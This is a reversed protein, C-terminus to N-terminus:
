STNTKTEMFYHWSIVAQRIRTGNIFTGNSSGLDRVYFVGENYGIVSHEKSLVQLLLEHLIYYFPGWQLWDCLAGQVSGTVPGWTLYLSGAMLTALWLTSRPCFRYCSSMYSLTFRGDIYGIVSHEKSLVQLLLESLIYHVPWWHLWACLTSRPCFRYCSSLCSITFQGDIYLLWACFAGQFSGTVPAWSLNLTSAILTALWLTCRPCFRYFSSMYSITFKGDSYGIVSHEKSLVQLLLEHLIYHVPGWQLWDCLAGRVSCTVPAWTLYLSSAMLAALCLTSRPCFMYCSSMYSITFQGDICGLVSHEKSLVQLLLEHLM